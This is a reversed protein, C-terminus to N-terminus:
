LCQIVKEMTAMTNTHYLKVTLKTPGKAIVFVPHSEGYYGDQKYSQTESEAQYTKKCDCFCKIVKEMYGDQKYGTHCELINGQLIIINIM